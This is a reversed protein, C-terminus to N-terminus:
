HLPQCKSRDSLLVLRDYSSIITWQFSAFCLATELPHTV